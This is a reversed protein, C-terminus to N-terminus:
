QSPVNIHRLTNQDGTDGAKDAHVDGMTQQGLTIIDESQIIKVGIVIRVQFRRPNDLEFWKGVEPELLFINGVALRHRAEKRSLSKRVNNVQRSLRPHTVRQGVRVSIGFRIENAKEVDEFSAAMGTSPM